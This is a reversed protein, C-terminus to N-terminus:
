GPPPPPTWCMCRTSTAQSDRVGHFTRKILVGATVYAAASATCYQRPLPRSQSRGNLARACPPGAACQGGSVLLRGGSAAFGHYARPPPPAAAALPAWNLATTDHRFLDNTADSSIRHPLSPLSPPLPLPPHLPPYRSPPLTLRLSSVLLRLPNLFVIAYTCNRKWARAERGLCM